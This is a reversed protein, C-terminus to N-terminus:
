RGVPRGCYPVAVASRFCTFFYIEWDLLGSSQLSRRQGTPGFFMKRATLRQLSHALARKPTARHAEGFDSELRAGDVV